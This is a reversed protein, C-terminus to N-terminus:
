TLGIVPSLRKAVVMIGSIPVQCLGPWDSEERSNKFRFGPSQSLKM